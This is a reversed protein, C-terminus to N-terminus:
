WLKGQRGLQRGRAEARSRQRGLHHSLAIDPTSVPARFGKHALPNASHPSAAPYPRVIRKRIRLEVALHGGADIDLLNALKETLLIRWIRGIEALTRGNATLNATLSKARRCAIGFM